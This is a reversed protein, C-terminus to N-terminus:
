PHAVINIKATNLQNTCYVLARAARDLQYKCASHTVRYASSIIVNRATFPDSTVFASLMTRFSPPHDSLRRTLRLM